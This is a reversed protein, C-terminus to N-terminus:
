QVFQQLQFARMAKPQLLVLRYVKSVSYDSIYGDFGRKRPLDLRLAHESRIFSFEALGVVTNSEDLVALQGDRQVQAIGHSVIGEFRAAPSGTDADRLTSSVHAEAIFEDSQELAGRWQAGVLEWTPEAFMALRNKKLLALSRLVDARSADAGDPFLAGDFVGSRAAAAIQQSSRYVISGWGASVQQTPLLVLPLVAAASWAVTILSRSRLNRTDAILLLALGAWFLSSWVLYRDAYVQEPYQQFYDLRGVSVVASSALAFLCFMSALVQLRTAQERLNLVLAAFRILFIGIGLIGLVRAMTQWPIGSLTQLANASTIIAPGLKTYLLGNTMSSDLPPDAHGLWGHVWPSSLWDAAILASKLLHFNLAGRVGQDGPLAYLYLFLCTALAAVPIIQWRWPLRLALGLLIVAPFSAVGSGFCFMAIACAACAGALWRKSARRSAEYTCLGAVSISLILLYIHMSEYSHLLMRGNALWLVGLVSLLVGASRAIHSLERERAVSLVALLTALVACILGGALQLLHNAAFWKVEAVIVLNPFIPRHGSGSQLVNDPFPMQLLTPYMNYEDFMPQRWGFNLVACITTWAYFIAWGLFWASL